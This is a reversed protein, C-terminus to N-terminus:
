NLVLNKQNTMIQEYGPLDFQQYSVTGTILPEDATSIEVIKVAFPNGNMASFQVSDSKQEIVLADDLEDLTMPIYLPNFQVNEVLDPSLGEKITALSADMENMPEIDNTFENSLVIVDTIDGMAGPSFVAAIMEAAEGSARIVYFSPTPAVIM